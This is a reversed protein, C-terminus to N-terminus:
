SRRRVGHAVIISAEADTESPVLKFSGQWTRRAEELEAHASRGKPLVWRTKEDSLHAAIAFLTPLAAVARATIGALAPLTVREVKCRHIVVHDLGLAARAQELFAVRRARPEVLHVPDDRLCALVLGPLGAGSGIDMLPGEPLWRLLQRSDAIHRTEFLPITAASILNQRTAEDLILAKLATLKASTERPVTM